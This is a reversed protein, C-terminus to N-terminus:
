RLQAMHLPMSNPAEMAVYLCSQIPIRMNFIYEMTIDWAARSAQAVRDHIM